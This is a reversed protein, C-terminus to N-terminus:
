FKLVKEFKLCFRGDKLHHNSYNIHLFSHPKKTCYQYIEIWLKKKLGNSHEDYMTNVQQDSSLWLCLNSCNNRVVPALSKYYQTTVWISLGGGTKRNEGYHRGKTFIAWFDEKNSRGGPLPITDDVILLSPYKKKNVKKEVKKIFDIDWKDIINEKKLDMDKWRHDHNITPCIIYINRPHYFKYFPFKKRNLLNLLVTTKGSLQSPGIFLVRSPHEPLTESFKFTKQGKIPEIEYNLKKM